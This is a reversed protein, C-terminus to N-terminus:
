ENAYGTDWLEKYEKQSIKLKKCFDKLKGDPVKKWLNIYKSMTSDNVGLERAFQCQKIGLQMTKLKLIAHQKM